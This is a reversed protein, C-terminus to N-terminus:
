GIDKLCTKINDEGRIRPREHPQKGEPKGVWIRDTNRKVRGQGVEDDKIV